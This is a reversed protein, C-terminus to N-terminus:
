NTDSFSNSSGDMPYKDKIHSNTDSNTEDINNNTHEEGEEETEVGLAAEPGGCSVCKGRLWCKNRITVVIFAILLPLPTFTASTIPVTAALDGYPKEFSSLLLIYAIGTDQIGTEIAITVARSNGQKTLRAIVYGLSMGLFPLLFGAPIVYWVTAMVTYIYPNIISGVIIVWLLFIASVPSIGKCIKKAIAPKFKNLLIGLGCPAIISLLGYSINAYPIEVTGTIYLRGLIFLWLPMM